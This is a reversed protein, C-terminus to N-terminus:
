ARAKPLCSLESLGPLRAASRSVVLRTQGVSSFVAEAVELTGCVLGLGLVFGSDFYSWGSGSSQAPPLPIEWVLELPLEVEVATGYIRRGELM